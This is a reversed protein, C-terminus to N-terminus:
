VRGLLKTAVKYCPQSLSTVVNYYGPYPFQLWVRVVKDCPQRLTTVLHLTSSRIHCLQSKTPTTKHLLIDMCLMIM